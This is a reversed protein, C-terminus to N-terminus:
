EIVAAVDANGESIQDIAFRDLSILKEDVIMLMGRQDIRTALEGVGAEEHGTIVEYLM